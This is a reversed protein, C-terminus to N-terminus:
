ATATKTTQRLEALAEDVLRRHDDASIHRSLAKSSLTAALDVAQRYIDALAETKAADIEREAQARFEGAAKQAAERAQAVMAEAEKRAREYEARNREAAAQADNQLSTRLAQAEQLVKQAEDRAGIIAAERSRLGKAIHPWAYKNLVFLLIGFVILTYIGLDYRKLGTFALPDKRAEAAHKVEDDTAPRITNGDKVYVDAASKGKGEAAASVPAAALLAAVALVTCPVYRM